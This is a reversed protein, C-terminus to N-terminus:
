KADKQKGRTISVDVIDGRSLERFANADRSKIELQAIPTYCGYSHDTIITGRADKRSVIKLKTGDRDSTIEDVIFEDKM